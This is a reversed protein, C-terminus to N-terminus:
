KGLWWPAGAAPAPPAPPAADPALRGEIDRARDGLPGMWARRWGDGETTFDEALRLFASFRPWEAEPAPFRAKFVARAAKRLSALRGARVAGARSAAEAAAALAEGTLVRWLRVDEPRWRHTM